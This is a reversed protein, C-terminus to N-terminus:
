ILSLLESTRLPKFLLGAPRLGRVQSLRQPDSVGTTVIVKAQSGSAGLRQLIIAGDGDPLMLDLIVADPTSQELHHLAEALTRVSTVEHGAHKLVYELAKVSAPDDEVL